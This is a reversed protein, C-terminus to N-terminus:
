PISVSSTSELHTPSVQHCAEAQFDRVNRLVFVPAAPARHVNFNQFEAGTVDMLLAAPRSDETLFGLDVQSVQLETAHRVFLGYAPLIGFMSPEPYGNEREPIDFPERPSSAPFAEMVPPRGGEPPRVGHPRQFFGHTFFGNILAGPQEAAEKMSLGGKYLIRIRNLSVQEVPHGPIGAIICPYRADVGSVVIDSINIRRIAGVPTGEPGRARNGLRLFIPSNMIDRMTINSISVDEITGGDVTELALGRCHEFVCNTIVINRFSGNSETGIKIRGTVGDDDPAHKQTRRYSGDLFSGVEFGSVQCNSITINECDRLAGLAYSAKLVLADDNPSNISCNSIRVNRCADIDFGDRNTDVRLNDLTLNDVGTALLAFHGGNLISLDRLTVNRCLRLAIAKNGRGQMDSFARAAAAAGLTMIDKKGAPPGRRTLASGDILVPGSLTIDEMGDAWILSNHWHSHGFDQYADHPNAEADDYAGKTTTADAAVLVCGPDFVLAIHSKLRLSFSLYRGAPFRVTGGGASSAAEIAANIAPSDLTTGDGKAGHERVNFEAGQLLAFGSALLTAFLRFLLVRLRM